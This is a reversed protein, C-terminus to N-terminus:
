FPKNTTRRYLGLYFPSKAEWHPLGHNFFYKHLFAEKAGSCRQAASVAPATTVQARNVRWVAVAKRRM